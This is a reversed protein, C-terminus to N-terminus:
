TRTTRTTSITAEAQTRWVKSWALGGASPASVKMDPAHSWYPGGLMFHDVAWVPYYFCALAFHVGQLTKSEAIARPDCPVYYFGDMGYERTLGLSCRSLLVYSGVYLGVVACAAVVWRRGARRRAHELWKRIM